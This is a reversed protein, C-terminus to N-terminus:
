CNFFSPLRLFAKRMFKKKDVCYIKNWIFVYKLSQYLNEFLIFKFILKHLYIPNFFEVSFKWHKCKYFTISLLFFFIKSSRRETSYFDKFIKRKDRRGYRIKRDSFVNSDSIPKIFYFFSLRWLSIKGLFVSILEHLFYLVFFSFYDHM